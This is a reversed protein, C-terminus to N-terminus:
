FASIIEKLFFNIPILSDLITNIYWYIVIVNVILTFSQLRKYEACKTIM